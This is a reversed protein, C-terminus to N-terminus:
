LGQEKRLRLWSGYLGGGLSTDASCYLVDERVYRMWASTNMDHGRQMSQLKKRGKVNLPQEIDGTQHYKPLALAPHEETPRRVPNDGNGDCQETTAQPYWEGLAHCTRVLDLYYQEEASRAMVQENLMPLVYQQNNNQRM